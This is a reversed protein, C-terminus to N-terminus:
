RLITSWCHTPENTMHIETQASFNEAPTKVVTGTKLNFGLAIRMQQTWCLPPKELPAPCFDTTTEMFADLFLGPSDRRCCTKKCPIGWIRVGIKNLTKASIWTHEIGTDVLMRPIRASQSRNAHNEIQCAIYFAGM